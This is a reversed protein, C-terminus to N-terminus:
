YSWGQSGFESNIEEDTFMPLLIDRDERQLFLMLTQSLVKCVIFLTYLKLKPLSSKEELYLVLYTCKPPLIEAM